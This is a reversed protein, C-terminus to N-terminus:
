GHMEFVEDSLSFCISRFASQDQEDFLIQQEPTRPEEERKDEIVHWLKQDQLVLEM